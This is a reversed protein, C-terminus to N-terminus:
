PISTNGNHSCLFFYKTSSLKDRKQIPCSPVAKSAARIGVTFITLLLYAQATAYGSAFKSPSPGFFSVEQNGKRQVDVKLHYSSATWFSEKHLDVKEVIKPGFHRGKEITNLFNQPGHGM